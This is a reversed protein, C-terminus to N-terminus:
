QAAPVADAYSSTQLLSLVERKELADQCARSGVYGKIILPYCDSEEELPLGAEM